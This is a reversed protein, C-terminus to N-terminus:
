ATEDPESKPGRGEKPKRIEFKPRRETKPRRTESKRQRCQSSKMPTRLIMGDAFLRCILSLIFRVMMVSRASQVIAKDAIPCVVVVVVVFVVIEVFAVIVVIVVVVIVVFVITVVFAGIVAGDTVM